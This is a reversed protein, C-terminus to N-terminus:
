SAGSLGRDLMAVLREFSEDLSLPLGFGASSELTVFGHLAARV